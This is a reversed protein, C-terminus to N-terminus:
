KKDEEKTPKEGGEPGYFFVWTKFDESFESFRHDVHAAVFFVDGTQFDHIVGDAMFKGTGSAIVYLEDQEHPQQGDIEKPGYMGIRMSGHEYYEMYGRGSDKLQEIADELGVKVQNTSQDMSHETPIIWFLSAIFLFLTYFLNM